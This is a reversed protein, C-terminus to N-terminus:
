ELLLGLESRQICCLFAGSSESLAETLILDTATRCSSSFVVFRCRRDLHSSVASGAQASKPLLLYGISSLDLRRAPILDFVM